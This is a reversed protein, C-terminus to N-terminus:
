FRRLQIATLSHISQSTREQEVYLVAVVPQKTSGNSATADDNAM